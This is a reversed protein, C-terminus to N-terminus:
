DTKESNKDEIKDAILALWWQPRKFYECLWSELTKTDLM